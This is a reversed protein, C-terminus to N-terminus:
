RLVIFYLRLSVCLFLASFRLPNSTMVNVKRNEAGVRRVEANFSNQIRTAFEFGYVELQLLLLAPQLAM